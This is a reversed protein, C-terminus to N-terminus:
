ELLMILIGIFLASIFSLLIILNNYAAYSSDFLYHYRHRPCRLERDLYLMDQSFIQYNLVFCESCFNTLDYSYCHYM